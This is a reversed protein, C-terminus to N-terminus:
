RYIYELELKKIRSGIAGRTRGFHKAMDGLSIGQLYMQALEQDLAHTWPQYADKNKDRTEESSVSKEKSYGIPEKQNKSKSKAASQAARREEEEPQVRLVQIQASRLANKPLLTEPIHILNKTRTVAVYLLNIEENLKSINIQEDTRTGKTQKEIKEQTIFDNVIQISDYEMGKCRHVTSFIMEAKHKEENGVHKEKILKLINPIDNGYEHIIEIMMGLQVDETKEIYEELEDMNKMQAILKDRILAPKKNYLNLVDYLSTGEDAYTYSHINGEFYIHKVNKKETVYEIAKLLLGLNTRAIIAKVTTEKGSGKGEIFFQQEEAVFNKWNLVDIALKAIDASFRFSSSLHHTKFNAKELSNVAFRWGYIQQHTDGVIVKTASQKFFIDLMAPSADQGEDFLIYDFYLRPNSLQFKKLYFDHTIEIEGKDMKALFLRTNKEIYEYAASVFAKAEADFVVDRYNLEQVKQKDSNCFYAVFKNIHNAAVYEAHKDGNNKLGLIDVIEHTKYGNAKVRYNYRFVIERYALSHATEVKVNHLGQDTFKKQAELKVSKNFALYLVKSSAPRAKAYAIITTTKGSGAVANIKIDGTSNIIEIQEKTFEM